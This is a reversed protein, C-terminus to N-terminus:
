GARQIWSNLCVLSPRRPSPHLCSLLRTIKPLVQHVGCRDLFHGFMSKSHLAAEDLDIRKTEPVFVTCCLGACVHQVCYTLM